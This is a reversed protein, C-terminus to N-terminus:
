FATWAVVAIKTGTRPCAHRRRGRTMIEGDMCAAVLKRTVSLPKLTLKAGAHIKIPYVLSNRASWNVVTRCAPLNEDSKELIAPDFRAFKCSHMFVIDDARLRTKPDRVRDIKM